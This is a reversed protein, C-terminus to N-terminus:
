LNGQSVWTGPSGAVTCVWSKPQGTAPAANFVIDGVAYTGVTPAGNLWGILSSDFLSTGDPMTISVNRIQLTAGSAATGSNNPYFGFTAANSVSPILISTSVWSGTKVLSLSTYPSNDIQASPVAGTVNNSNYEFNVMCYQTTFNLAKHIGKYTSTDVVIQLADTSPTFTLGYDGSWGSIVGTLPSTCTSQQIFKFNLGRLSEPSITGHIDHVFFRTGAANSPSGAGIFLPLGYYESELIDVVSNIPSDIKGLYGANSPGVISVKEVRVVNNLGNALRVACAYTSLAPSITGSSVRVSKIETVEVTNYNGNFINVGYYDDDPNYNGTPNNNVGTGDIRSIKVVNYQATVTGSGWPGTSPYYPTYPQWENIDLGNSGINYCEDVIVVNDTGGEIEVGCGLSQRNTNSIRKSHLNNRSAGAIIYYGHRGPSDIEMDFFSNQTNGNITIGDLLGGNIGSIKGGSVHIEATSGYTTQFMCLSGVSPSTQLTYGTGTITLIANPLRFCPSATEYSLPTETSGILYTAAGLQVPVGTGSCVTIANKIAQWDNIVGNGVAGYRRVDGEPYNYNTPTVGVATEQATISYYPAADSLYAFNADLESLPIPGTQTGFTYPVTM